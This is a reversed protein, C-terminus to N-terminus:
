NHEIADNRIGSRLVVCLLIYNDSDNPDHHCAVTIFLQTAYNATFQNKKILAGCVGDQLRHAQNSCSQDFLNYVPTRSPLLFSM